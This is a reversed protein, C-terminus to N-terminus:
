FKKTVLNKDEKKKMVIAEQAEEATFHMTQSISKELSKSKQNLKGFLLLTRQHPHSINVTKLSKFIISRPSMSLHLQNIKSIIMRSKILKKICKLLM